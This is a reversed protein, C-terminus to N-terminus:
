HEAQTVQANLRSKQMLWIWPGTIVMSVSECELTICYISTRVQSYTFGLRRFVGKALCGTVNCLLQYALFFSHLAVQM